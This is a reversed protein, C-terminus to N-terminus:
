KLDAVYANDWKVSKIGGHPKLFFISCSTEIIEDKQAGGCVIPQFIKTHEQKVMKKVFNTIIIKPIFCETEFCYGFFERLIM